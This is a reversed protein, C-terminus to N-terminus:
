LAPTDEGVLFVREYSYFRGGEVGFIRGQKRAQIIELLVDSCSKSIVM